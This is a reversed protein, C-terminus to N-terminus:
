KKKLKLTLYGALKTITSVGIHSPSVTDELIAKLLERRYTLDTFKPIDIMRSIIQLDEYNSIFALFIVYDKKNLLLSKIEAHNKKNEIKVDINNPKKEKIGIDLVEAKKGFYINIPTKFVDETIVTNGCNVIKFLVLEIDKVKKKDFLLEIRDTYDNVNMLPIEEILEYGIKKRKKTYIGLIAVILLLIAIIVAIIQWTLVNDWM